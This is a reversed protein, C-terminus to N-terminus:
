ELKETCYFSIKEGNKDGSFVGKAFRLVIHATFKVANDFGYKSTFKYLPVLLRLDGSKAVRGLLYRVSILSAHKLNRSYIEGTKIVEDEFIEISKIMKMVDDSIRRGDHQRYGVIINGVGVLDGRMSLDFYFMWDGAGELRLKSMRQSFEVKSLLSKRVLVGSGLGVPNREAVDAPSYVRVAGGKKDKLKRKLRILDVNDDKDILVSRGFACVADGRERLVGLLIRACDPHLLDDCDLFLVFSGSCSAIGTNRSACVGSNAEFRIYQYRCGNEELFSKAIQETNDTSADDILVIEINEHTQSVASALASVVWDQANYAPIIISVLDM